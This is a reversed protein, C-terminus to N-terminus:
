VGVFSVVNGGVLGEFPLVQAAGDARNNTGHAITLTLNEIAGDFGYGTLNHIM